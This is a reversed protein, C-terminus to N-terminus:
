QEFTNTWLRRTSHRVSFWLRDDEYPIYALPIPYAWEEGRPPERPSEARGEDSGGGDQRQTQEIEEM